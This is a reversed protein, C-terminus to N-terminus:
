DTIIHVSNGCKYQQKKKLKNNLAQPTKSKKEDLSVRIVNCFFFYQKLHFFNQLSLQMCIFLSDVFSSNAFIIWICKLRGFTKITSFVTNWTLSIAGEIHTNIWKFAYNKGNEIM